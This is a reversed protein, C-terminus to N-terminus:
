LPSMGEFYYKENPMKCRRPTEPILQGGSAMCDEFTKVGGQDVPVDKPLNALDIVPLAPATPLVPAMPLASTPPIDPAAVQPIAPIEAIGCTAAINARTQAGVSGYGTTAPTGACVLGRDCQFKRVAAETLTGFYGTASDPALLKQSVLFQQLQMVDAGRMGRVLTRTLNPCSAASSVEAKPQAQLTTIKALLSQLQAQLEALTAASAVVPLVLALITGVFAIRTRLMGIIM